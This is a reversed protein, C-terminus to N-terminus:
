PMSILRGKAFEGYTVQISDPDGIYYIDGLGNITADLIQSANVYSDSNALSTIEVKETEYHLADFVGYSRKYVSLAKNNDGHITLRSTGYQYVIRLDKCHSFNLDIDGSGGDVMFRYYEDDNLDGNYYNETKLTGSSSFIFNTIEKFYLTVDLEYDYPRLWNATTNNSITLSGNHVENTINDIINKGTKIVIYCTDSRVLSLNINDNLYVEKFDPLERTQTVIPGVSLPARKCSSFAALFSLIIIILLKYKM